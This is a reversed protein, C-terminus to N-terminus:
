DIQYLSIEIIELIAVPINRKIFNRLIHYKPMFKM